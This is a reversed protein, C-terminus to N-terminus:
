RSPSHQQTLDHRNKIIIKNHYVLWWKYWAQRQPPPPPGGPHGNPGCRAEGGTTPLGSQFCVWSCAAVPTLPQTESPSRAGNQFVPPTMHLQCGRM